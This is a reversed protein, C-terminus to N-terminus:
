QLGRLDEPRTSRGCCGLLPSARQVRLRWPDGLVAKVDTRRLAETLRGARERDDAAFYRLAPAGPEELHVRLGLGRAIARRRSASPDCAGSPAVVAVLDGPRVPKPKRLRFHDLRTTSRTSRQAVWPRGAGGHGAVGVRITVLLAVARFNKSGHLVPRKPWIQRSQSVGDRVVEADFRTCGDGPIRPGDGLDHFVGYALVQADFLFDEALGSCAKAARPPAALPISLCFSSTPIRSRIAFFFPNTAHFAQAIGTSATARV